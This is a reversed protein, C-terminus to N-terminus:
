MSLTKLLFAEIAVTDTDCSDTPGIVSLMVVSLMVANLIVTFLIHCEGHQCLVAISLPTISLTMKSATM